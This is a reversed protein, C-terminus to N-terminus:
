ERDRQCRSIEPYDGLLAANAEAAIAHCSGAKATDGHLLHLNSKNLHLVVVNRRTDVNRPDAQLLSDNVRRAQPHPPSPKKWCEPSPSL